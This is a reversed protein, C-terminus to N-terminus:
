TGCHVANPRPVDGWPIARRKWLWGTELAQELDPDREEAAPRGGGPARMHSEPCGALDAELEHRGCLITTPSMGTIQMLLHKGGHGLRMPELAVFWRRQPENLRGLFVNMHHHFAQDPHPEASQCLPCECHVVPSHTM